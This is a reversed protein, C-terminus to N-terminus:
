NLESNQHLERAAELRPHYQAMDLVNACLAKTLTSRANWEGVTHSTSRFLDETLFARTCLTRLDMTPLTQRTPQLCHAQLTLIMRLVRNSGRWTRPLFCLADSNISVLVALMASQGPNQIIVGEM